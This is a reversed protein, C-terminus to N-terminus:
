TRMMDMMKSIRCSRGLTGDGLMVLMMALRMPMIM